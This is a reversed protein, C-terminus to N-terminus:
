VLYLVIFMLVGIGVFFSWCTSCAGLGTRLFTPDSDAFGNRRGRWLAAIQTELWYVGWLAGLAYTATWGFFVSAYGGSAPGFGLVSYQLFQLGVGILALVIAAVGTSIEDSPRRASLAAFLGSLIFVSMIAVGLGGSPSVHKGITWSRNPDLSRLYFYAFLFAAFFFAIAGCWMRAAVTLSRPAWERPEEQFREASADM